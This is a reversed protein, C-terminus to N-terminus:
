DGRNPDTPRKTSLVRGKAYEWTGRGGSDTRAKTTHEAQISKILLFAGQILYELSIEEGKKQKIAELFAPFRAFFVPDTSELDRFNYKFTDQNFIETVLEHNYEVGNQNFTREITDHLLHRKSKIKNNM